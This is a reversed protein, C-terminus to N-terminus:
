MRIQWSKFTEYLFRIQERYGEWLYFMKNTYDHYEFTIELDKIYYICICVNFLTQLLLIIYVKYLTKNVEIVKNHLQNSSNELRNQVSKMAKLDNSFISQRFENKYLLNRFYRSDKNLFRLKEM